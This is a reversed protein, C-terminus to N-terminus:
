IKCKRIIKPVTKTVNKANNTTMKASLLLMSCCDSCCRQAISRGVYFKPMSSRQLAAPEAHASMYLYVCICAIHRYTCVPIYMHVYYRAGVVMM